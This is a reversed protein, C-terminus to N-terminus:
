FGQSTEYAVATNFSHGTATEVQNKDLYQQYFSVKVPIAQAAAKVKATTVADHVRQVISLILLLATQIAGMVLLAKARSDPNTVHSLNLITNANTNITQTVADVIAGWTTTSPSNAYDTLATQILASGATVAAVGADVLPAVAPDLTDVIAAATAIYPQVQPLANAIDQAATKADQATCGVTVYTMACCLLLVLIRKCNTRLEPLTPLKFDLFDSLTATHM